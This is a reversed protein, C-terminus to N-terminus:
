YFLPLCVFSTGHNDLWVNMRALLENSDPYEKGHQQVWQFFLQRQEEVAASAKNNNNNNKIAGKLHHEATASSSSCIVATLFVALYKSPFMM